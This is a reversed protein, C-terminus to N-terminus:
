IAGSGRVVAPITMMLIKLDLLPSWNDIYELDYAIWQAFNANSRGRVQWLCTLGPKVSFRRMLWSDNFRAVDRLPLPRPGVLSMEGKLVNFLQPLEDLSTKRLFRGLSTVRPDNKIKFVPGQAENQSELTVQRAEADPVMTRFKYLRFKRKNLGYREQSFFVAGRSNVKIAMAIVLFLPPLLLLAMSAGIIDTIRKGLSSEQLPQLAGEQVQSLGLQHHLPGFHCSFPVGARECTKVAEQIHDYCSRLPLAILVEDIATSMLIQELQELSGSLSQKISDPIPHVGPSDIFGLVIYQSDLSQHLHQALSGSGLILARVPKANLANFRPLISWLAWRAILSGTLAVAFFILLSTFVPTNNSRSFLPFLLFFTSGLATASVVRLMISSKVAHRFDVYLGSLQHIGTWLVLFLTLLLVNKMSFRVALIESFSNGTVSHTLLLCM